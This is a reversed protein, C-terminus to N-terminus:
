VQSDDYVTGLSLVNTNNSTNVRAEHWNGTTVNRLLLRGNTAVKFRDESLTFGVPPVEGLSLSTGGPGRLLVNVWANSNENKIQLIGNQVRVFDGSVNLTDVPGLVTGGVGFTAENGSGYVVLEKWEPGDLSRVLISGTDSVGVYLAGLDIDNARFGSNLLEYDFEAEVVDSGTVVRLVALFDVKPLDNGPAADLKLATRYAEGTASVQGVYTAFDPTMMSPVRSFTALDWLAKVDRRRPRKILLHLSCPPVKRGASSYVHVRLTYLDGYRDSWGSLERSDGVWRTLRGSDLDLALSKM